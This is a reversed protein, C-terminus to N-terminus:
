SHATLSLLCKTWDNKLNNDCLTSAYAKISWEWLASSNSELAHILETSLKSPLCHCSLTSRLKMNVFCFVPIYTLRRAHRKVNLSSAYTSRSTIFLCCNKLPWHQLLLLTSM